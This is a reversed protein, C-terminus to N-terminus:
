NLTFRVPLNFHVKVAKGRQKGPKWNPMKKVVRIAEEACGGGIDRLVQIDSISGDENIVFKLVVMGTINNERAIPPYKINKGLYKYLAADGGPFTPM